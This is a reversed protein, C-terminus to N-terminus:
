ERDDGISPDPIKLNLTRQLSLRYLDFRNRTNELSKTTAEVATIFRQDGCLKKFAEVVAAKHKIAAKRVVSRAFFFEQVEFVARNFSREFRGEVFKRGVNDGYVKVTAEVAAFLERVDARVVPEEDGWAGNLDRMTDDLFKKMNGAYQGAFRRWAILRLLLEVDRLRADPTDIGLVTWIPNPTSTMELLYKAFSGRNLVQRLEQSSLPVSGTNIRYFIDYLVAEDKFGTIITTRIDANELQRRERSYRSEELFADISVGNLDDLVKLGSFERESWYDHYSSLYLGAITMLRQRGDIVIFSKRRRPNEALVIQPVPFSLVFSEILRSRRHDRWANRRQFAPDLDINGEDIQQVITGVTWDRAAVVVDYASLSEPRVLDSADERNWSEMEDASEPQSRRQRVKPVEEYTQSINGRSGATRRARRRVRSLPHVETPAVNKSYAAGLGRM